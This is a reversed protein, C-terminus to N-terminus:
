LAKLAKLNMVSSDIIEGSKTAHKSKFCYDNMKKRRIWNKRLKLYNPNESGYFDGSKM